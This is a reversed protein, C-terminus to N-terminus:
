SCGRPSQGGAQGGTEGYLRRLAVHIAQNSATLGHHIKEFAQTAEDETHIFAPTNTGWHFEGIAQRVKDDLIRAKLKTLQASNARTAEDEEPPDRYMEPPLGSRLHMVQRTVMKSVSRALDAVADQTALLTEIEFKDRRDDKTAEREDNRADRERRTQLYAGLYSASLTVVRTASM